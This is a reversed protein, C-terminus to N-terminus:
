EYRQLETVFLPFQGQTIAVFFADDGDSRTIEDGQTLGNGLGFGAQPHVPDHGDHATVLGPAIAEPQM